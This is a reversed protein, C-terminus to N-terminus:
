DNGVSLFNLRIFVRREYIIIIGGLNQVNFKERFRILIKMAQLSFRDLFWSIRWMQIYVRGGTYNKNYLPPINSFFFFSFIFPCLPTVRSHTVAPRAAHFCGNGKELASSVRVCFISPRVNGVASHTYRPSWLRNLSVANHLPVVRFRTCPEHRSTNM